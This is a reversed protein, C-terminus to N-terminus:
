QARRCVAELYGTRRNVGDIDLRGHVTEGLRTKIHSFRDTALIDTGLPLWVRISLQATVGDDVNAKRSPTDTYVYCAVGPQDVWEGNPQGYADAGSARRQCTATYRMMRRVSV